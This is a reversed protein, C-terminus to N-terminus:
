YNKVNLCCICTSAYMLVTMNLHANGLKINYQFHKFNTKNSVKHGYQIFIKNILSFLHISVQM